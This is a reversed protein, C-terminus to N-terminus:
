LEQAEDLVVALPQQGQDHRRCKQLAVQVTTRHGLPHVLLHQEVGAGLFQHPANVDLALSQKLRATAAEVARSFALRGAEGPMSRSATEQESLDYRWSIGM